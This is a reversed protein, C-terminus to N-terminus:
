AEKYANKYINIDKKGGTIGFVLMRLVAGIKLLIRLFSFQWSPLHKHFYYKIGKYESIIPFASNSSAAGIHMVKWDPNYIVKYGLDKVRKCYDVEETYMFFNEDFFGVKKQVESRMLFFAGTVWDLEEIKNYFDLNKFFSRSHFPHFPKIIRDIIPIDDIFLMWYLTKILSPFYGGTGQIENNVGVLKCTMVGVKLNEDLYKIMGEM